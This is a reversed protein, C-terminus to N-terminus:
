RYPKKKVMANIQFRRRLVSHSKFISKTASSVLIKTMKVNTYFDIGYRIGTNQLAILNYFTSITM